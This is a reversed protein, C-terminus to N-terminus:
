SAMRLRVDIVTTKGDPCIPHHLCTDPVSWPPIEESIPGFDMIQSQPYIHKEIVWRVPQTATAYLTLNTRPTKLEWVDCNVGNVTAKGAPPFHRM